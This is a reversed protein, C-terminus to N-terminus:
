LTYFEDASYIKRDLFEFTSQAYELNQLVYHKYIEHIRALTQIKSYDVEGTAIKYEIKSRAIADYGMGHAIYLTGLFTDYSNTVNAGHLTEMYLRPSKVLKDTIEDDSILRVNERVSQWYPTDDRQSLVYHMAVFDKFQEITYDAFHNYGDVDILNIDCRRRELANVLCIINEHATLLGTSELPEIFGYSLGIGVVNKVWAKKHKGHKINIYNFELDDIDFSKIITRMDYVNNLHEKYEKLATEDDVFKSSYVYGSGIRNWLPITWVWGNPMSWCDTYNVLEQPKDSYPIKCAIAKDNYLVDNFPIFESNMEQELLVSAFGTCDIFLDAHVTGNEKTTVSAISGDSTKSVSVVTDTIHEVGSKTCIETRLYQAFLDADFHYATDRDFNLNRIISNDDVMKNQTALFTIPNYYEAFTHPEYSNDIHKIYYWDELSLKNCSDIPGFPYQFRTNRQRWDTFSISVKYTANCKKMWDSDKLGILHLYQNFQGLTSEGVGVTNIDPSEILVVQCTPVRKALAAATMWGATGGGVICIKNVIM